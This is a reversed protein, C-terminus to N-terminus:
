IWTEAFAAFLFNDAFSSSLAVDAFIRSISSGACAADYSAALFYLGSAAERFYGPAMVVGPWIFGRRFRLNMERFNRVSQRHGAASDACLPEEM